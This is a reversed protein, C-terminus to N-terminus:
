GKRKTPKGCYLCADESESDISQGPKHAYQVQTKNYLEVVRRGEFDDKGMETYYHCIRDPSDPCWWGLESDCQECKAISSDNTLKFETLQHPCHKKIEKIQYKVFENLKQMRELRTRISQASFLNGCYPYHECYELMLRTINNNFNAGDTMLVLNDQHPYTYIWSNMIRKMTLEHYKKGNWTITDADSTDFEIKQESM